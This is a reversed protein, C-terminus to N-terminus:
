RDARLALGLDDLALRAADVFAHVESETMPVSLCGMGRPTFLIGHDLLALHLERLLATDSARVDAHSRVPRDTFHINFLSGVQTIHVPLDAGAILRELQAKLEVTLAELRAYAEPTLEDLTALGAAMSLPNANFTGGHALHTERRPDFLAMVDGRGGFAGVPLGGGIIKGLTTLDPTVGYRGQAGHYGIRFAIVEDFVLLARADDTFSRLFELFGPEAPIVGGAGMVPEVIVAALDDLRPALLARTTDVDNFPAVVLSDAVAPPVGLGGPPDGADAPISVAYDHTGHYAGAFVAITARGTFARAARIALMTAETGSNAFRVLEVGPLRERIRQAMEVELENAAAASMLRGGQRQVAEVVRPHCHGLVLSTYNSIFDIREVGDVDIVRCGEGRAAYIPYPDHFITTRSNGGPLSELAREWLARSASSSGQYRAAPASGAKVRAMRSM